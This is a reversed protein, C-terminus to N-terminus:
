RMASIPGANEWSRVQSLGGLIAAKEDDIDLYVGFNCKLILDVDQLAKAVKTGNDDGFTLLTIIEPFLHVPAEADLEETLSPSQALIDHYARLPELPVRKATDAKKEQAFWEQLKLRAKFHAVLGSKHGVLGEYRRVLDECRALVKGSRWYRPNTAFGAEFRALLLRQDATTTPLDFALDMLGLLTESARDLRKCEAKTLETNLSIDMTVPLFCGKSTKRFCYRSLWFAKGAAQLTTLARDRIQRDVIDLAEDAQAKLLANWATAEASAAAKLLDLRKDIRAATAGSRNALRIALSRDSGHEGWGFSERLTPELRARVSPMDKGALAQAVPQALLRSIDTHGYGFHTELVRMWAKILLISPVTVKGKGLALQEANAGLWGTEITERAAQLLEAHHQQNHEALENLVNWALAPALINETTRDLAHRVNDAVKPDHRNEAHLGMVTATFRGVLQRPEIQAPFVSATEIGSYGKDPNLSRAISKLLRSEKERIGNAAIEVVKVLRGMDKDRKSFARRLFVFLSKGYDRLRKREADKIPDIGVRCTQELASLLNLYNISLLRDQPTM